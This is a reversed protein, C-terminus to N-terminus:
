NVCRPGNAATFIPSPPPPPAEEETSSGTESAAPTTERGSGPGNYDNSLVVRVTHEALGPKQVVQLGLAEAVAKAGVDDSEAAQVQSNGAHEAENNGVKGATFGKGVLLESVAAALGNIQTENVVDAITQDKSYTAEETKGQAQQDLLGSVWSRVQDPDVKVVSQTGDETWGDERLIPITAFAVNGGSLKQLQKIFDMVDWGESLVVTRTIADRLKGLTSPNTLTGGSLASHALSSMVVQQRVVRDLDGRPLDHRQRVFSLANPGDLTQPGAPFDAGSMPEYVAENLCVDVGGLANTMLVFGLMSVEAYRDVTVGTLKAVTQTLASRGADVSEREAAELTEGSEVRKQRDNEKAEGYVGNIKGKSGDPVTVYSDRPISIATASKGNSPIRILIITDTNTATEDGARLMSLEDQSLPNGHADSRSDVGVMLIDIAGDDPRGANGFLGPLDFRAINPDINGIKGWAAGTVVMVAVAALTAIGRWLPRPTETQSSGSARPAHPDTV